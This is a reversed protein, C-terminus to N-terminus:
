PCATGTADTTEAVGAIPHLALCSERNTTYGSERLGFVFFNGTLDRVAPAISDYFSTDAFLPSFMITDVTTAGDSSEVLLDLTAPVTYETFKLDKGVEYGFGVPADYQGETSQMGSSEPHMDAFLTITGGVGGTFHIGYNAPTVRDTTDGDNDYDTSDVVSKGTVALSRAERFLSGVQQNAGNFTFTRQSRFLGTLAAASLIVILMMVILLEILTFGGKERQKQISQPQQM